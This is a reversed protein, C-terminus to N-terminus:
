SLQLADEEDPWQGLHYPREGKQLRAITRLASTSPALCPKSLKVFKRFGIGGCRECWWLGRTLRMTHTTHIAHPLGECPSQLFQLRPQTATPGRLCKTCRGTVSDISHTTMRLAEELGEQRERARCAAEPRRQLRSSPGYLSPAAKAVHLAVAALHHQVQLADADHRQVAAVAEAPLQAAAAEALKDAADNAAWAVPDMGESFAEELTRHTKIKLAVADRSGVAAWFRRWHHGHRKPVDAPGRRVGRLVYTADRKLVLFVSM